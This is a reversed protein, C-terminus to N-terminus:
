SLIVETIGYSKMKKILINRDVLEFARKLNLFVDKKWRYKKKLEIVWQLVIECSHRTRFGSWCKKLFKNDEL